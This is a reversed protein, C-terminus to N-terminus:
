EGRLGFQWACRGQGKFVLVAAEAKASISDGGAGGVVCICGVAWVLAEASSSCDVWGIVAKAELVLM